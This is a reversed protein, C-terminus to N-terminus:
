TVGDCNASSMAAKSPQSKTIGDDIKHDTRPRRGEDYSGRKLGCPRLHASATVGCPRALQLFGDRVALWM